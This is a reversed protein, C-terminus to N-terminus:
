SSGAANEAVQGVPTAAGHASVIIRALRDTQETRGIGPLRPSLPREWKQSALRRTPPGLSPPSVRQAGKPLEAHPPNLGAPHWVGEPPARRGATDGCEFRRTQGAGLDAVCAGRGSASCARREAKRARVEFDGRYQEPGADPRARDDHEDCGRGLKVGAM